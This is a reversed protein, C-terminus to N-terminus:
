CPCDHDPYSFELLTAFGDGTDAVLRLPAVLEPDGDGDLDFAAAPRFPELTLGSRNKWGAGSQEFVITMEAGFESCPNGGTAHVVAWTKGSQPHRFIDVTPATEEDWTGTGGSEAFGKQTAAWEPLKRFASKVKGALASDDVPEFAVVPASARAFLGAKCTGAEAVLVTKGGSWVEGAIEAESLAPEDGEGRWVAATGFHPTLGAVLSPRGLATECVAGDRGYVTMKKGLLALAAPELSSRDLHARARFSASGPEAVLAPTGKESGGQPDLLVEGDLIFHFDALGAAAAGKGGVVASALMEERAIRLGGDERVVVLEKPGVDQFSGQKFTQQVRVLASAGGATVKLDDAAVEMKKKFMRGRDKMWGERDFTFVRPGVRKIGTMRRAYLAQYAAFDGQNQAGKWAEVLATVEASEIERAKREGDGREQRGDGTEQKGDGTEQKRSDERKAPEKEGGCGVAMVLALVLRM